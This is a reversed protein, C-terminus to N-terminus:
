GGFSDVFVRPEANPGGFDSKFLTDDRREAADAAPEFRNAFIVDTEATAGPGNPSHDIWAVVGLAMVAFAAAGALGSVFTPVPRRSSTASRPGELASELSHRLRALIQFDAACSSCRGLHAVLRRRQWPWLRGTALASLQEASPCDGAPCDCNSYSPPRNPSDIERHKM